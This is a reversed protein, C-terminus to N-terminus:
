QGLETQAPPMTNRCHRGANGELMQRYVAIIKQTWELSSFKKVFEGANSQKRGLSIAKSLADACAIPDEVPYRFCNSYEWCWSTGDIDSVVVPTNQSIAELIGYSFAEARSSSIFCDVARNLAFIDEYSHMYIIANSRPDIGRERLFVETREDPKGNCGAGIVGLKLRPDNKRYNEVARIAIDLGKRLHDWGLFLAIKEGSSIGIEKRREDISANDKEARQLSLGNFIYGHHKRGMLWYWNDKKKMVSICYVNACSYLAARRMTSLRQRIQGLTSVFDFHDHIILEVKLHKHNHLFFRELYGFHLHVLRIRYLDILEKVISLTEQTPTNNDLFCIKFGLREIWKVWICDDPQKPFLFVTDWGLSKVSDALDLLSAIFNGSQPARYDAALLIGCRTNEGMHKDLM